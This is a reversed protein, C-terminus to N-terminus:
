HPETDEPRYPTGYVTGPRERAAKRAGRIRLVVFTVVAVVVVVIVVKQFVGVYEEVVDWSSGLWYGSM